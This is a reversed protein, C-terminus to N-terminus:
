NQGTQFVTRVNGEVQGTGAELDVLLRDGALTTQNQTFLVDGTMTIMGEAVEYLADRAEAADTGKVFTVGGTARMREVEGQNGEAYEIRAEGASIRLDGQIILVNGTFVVLGADQDISLSDSTVQVPESTDHALGGVSIAAGQALAMGPLFLAFFLARFITLTM